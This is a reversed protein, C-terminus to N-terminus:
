SLGIAPSRAALRSAVVLGATEESPAHGTVAAIFEDRELSYLALDTVAIVTATRPVDRLLAIEGFFDGPGLEPAPEGDVTVAAEGAEIVYFRDGPDGQVIVPKGAAATLPKLRLALEELGAGPLVSLFPVGRLLALEREPVRAKADIARLRGWTLVVLVPLLAGSVVLAATLGVTEVLASCVVGGVAVAGLFLSETIGFVRALVEDPVARQLLTFGAVDVITNALGVVGLLVLVGAQSDWLAILAIPAGWLVTGIGFAGALRRRGVLAIAGIAGLVGGIGLASNLVGLGEEGTGLLDLAVVVVLVNLAGCVLLQATFLGVLVRVDADAAIARAGATVTGIVDRAAPEEQEAPEERGPVRLGGILAASWLFTGAAIAFSVGTSTAALIVGGLAPGVFSTVSEITSSVVNAATLEDPTRALSPLIAAQAPRFATSVISVFGLIAYVVATPGGAFVTAAAAAMALARLLDAAVMVRVRDYRDGLISTFPAAVAAPLM